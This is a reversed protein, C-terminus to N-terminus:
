RRHPRRRVRDRTAPQAGEILSAQARLLSARASPHIECRLRAEVLDLCREAGPHGLDLAAAMAERVDASRDELMREVFQRDPAASLADVIISVQRVGQSSAFAFRDRAASLLHRPLGRATHVADLLRAAERALAETAARDILTGLLDDGLHACHGDGVLVDAALDRLDQDAHRSALIETAEERVVPDNIAGILRASRIARRTPSTKWFWWIQQTSGVPLPIAEALCTLLAESAAARLAAPHDVSSLVSLAILLFDPNM